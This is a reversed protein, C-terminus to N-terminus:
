YLGSKLTPSVYKPSVSSSPESPTVITPFVPLEPLQKNVLLAPEPEVSQGVIAPEAPSPPADSLHQRVTDDDLPEISGTDSDLSQQPYMKPMMLTVDEEDATTPETETNKAVSVFDFSANAESDAYDLSLSSDAAPSEPRPTPAGSGEDSEPIALQSVSSPIDPMDEIPGAFTSDDRITDLESMSDSLERVTLAIGPNSIAEFESDAESPAPETKPTAVLVPSKHAESESIESGSQSTEVNQIIEPESQEAESSARGQEAHVSDNDSLSALEVDTDQAWSDSDM